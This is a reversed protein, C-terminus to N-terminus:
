IHAKKIFPIKKFIDSPNSRSEVNELKINKFSRKEKEYFQYNKM